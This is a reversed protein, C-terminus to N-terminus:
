TSPTAALSAYRAWDGAAARRWQNATDDCYGLLEGLIPAPVSAALALLAAPRGTQPHIGLQRLRRRIREPGIRTGPKAGPLLWPGTTQAHVARLLIALPDPVEIPDQGLKLRVQPGRLDLDDSRLTVIRTVRQGYLLVLCGAVRAALELTDDDLLARAQRLRTAHDIAASTTQPPPRKVHLAPLLDAHHAWDLFDRTPLARSPADAVWEDLLPQRLQQLALGQDQLWATLRVATRLKAYSYRHSSPRAGDGRLKRALEPRLKWRAYATLHARDPHEGTSLLTAHAWREFRALREDRADLIDNAVLWSRLYASAQGVDHEDLAEHSIAIEGRLMARLTPAAPSRELWSLASRPKDHQELRALLPTLRAIAHPDGETRLQALTTDLACRPCRQQSWNRGQAGCDRCQQITRTGACAACVPAGDVWAAPRRSFWCRRCRPRGRAAARQCGICVPGRETLAAIRRREGCQSCEATPAPACRRCIPQPTHAYYCRRLEGCLVCRALKLRACTKCLDLEEDGGRRDIRALQECEGCRRVRAPRPQPEPM